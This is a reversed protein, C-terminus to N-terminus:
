GVLDDVHLYTPAPLRRLARDNGVLATCGAELATAAVIAEVMRLGHEARIGAARRATERTM